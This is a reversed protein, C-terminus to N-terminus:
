KRKLTQLADWAFDPVFDSVRAIITIVFFSKKGRLGLIWAKMLEGRVTKTGKLSVARGASTDFTSWGSYAIGSTKQIHALYRVLLKEPWPEGLFRACQAKIAGKDDFYEAVEAEGYQDRLIRRDASINPSISFECFPPSYTDAVAPGSVLVGVLAALIILRIM